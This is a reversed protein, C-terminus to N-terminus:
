YLEGSADIADRNSWRVVKKAEELDFPRIDDRLYKIILTQWNDREEVICVLIKETYPTKTTEMLMGRLMEIMRSTALKAVLNTEDNEERSVRFVKVEIDDRKM